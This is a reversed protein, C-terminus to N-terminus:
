AQITQVPEQFMSDPEGYGDKEATVVSEGEGPDLRECPLGITIQSRVKSPQLICTVDACPLFEDFAFRDGPVPKCFGATFCQPCMQIGEVSQQM